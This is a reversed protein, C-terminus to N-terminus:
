AYCYFYVFFYHLVSGLIVFGHWIAHNIGKKDRRFFWTGATYAIGGSLLLAMGGVGVEKYVLPTTVIIAWGAVIYLIQSFKDFKEISVGNLAIGVTCSAGIIGFVVWGLATGFLQWAAPVYTGFILIFISCHDLKRFVAKARNRALSHYLCSALYLLILSAGYLCAGVIGRAGYPISRLILLVTGAVSLGAGVGHTIANGIEKGVSPYEFINKRETM